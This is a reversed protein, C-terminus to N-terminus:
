IEILLGDTAVYVNCAPNRNKIETEIDVDDWEPYLHTLLVNKVGAQNAIHIAEHLNLHKKAPKEYVFSCEILLLDTDRSFEILSEDFGTDSTYVITFNGNDLCIALSEDTHQTKFSQAALNPLIEFVENPRIEQFYLPFPQQWLKYNNSADMAEIVHLLREPGYIVLPKKRRQTQPAHKMGFLFPMLGGFHDLHFHSIWIADLNAWDCGEKAMRGIASPSIDLLLSGNETELWYGSSSRKPHPVSTGSGLVILRM